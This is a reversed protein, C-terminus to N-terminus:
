TPHRKPDRGAPDQSFRRHGRKRGRCRARDSRGKGKAQRAEPMRFHASQVKGERDLYMATCDGKGPKGYVHEAKLPLQPQGCNNIEVIAGKKPLNSSM